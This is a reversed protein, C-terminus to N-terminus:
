NQTDWIQNTPVQYNQTITAHEVDQQVLSGTLADGPDTAVLPDNTNVTQGVNILVYKGGGFIVSSHTGLEPTNSSSVPLVIWEQWVSNPNDARLAMKTATSAAPGDLGVYTNAGGNGFPDYKFRVVNDGKYASWNLGSQNVKGHSSVTGAPVILLDAGPDTTSSKEYWLGIPSNVATAQHLADLAGRFAYDNQIHYCANCTQTSVPAASAAGAGAIGMGGALLAASGAAAAIKAKFSM